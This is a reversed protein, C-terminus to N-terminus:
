VEEKLHVRNHIAIWWKDVLELAPVGTDAFWAEYNEWGMAKVLLEFDEVNSVFLFGEEDEQLTEIDVETLGDSGIMKM